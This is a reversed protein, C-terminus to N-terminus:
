EQCPHPFQTKSAIELGLTPMKPDIGKSAIALVLCFGLFISMTLFNRFTQDM